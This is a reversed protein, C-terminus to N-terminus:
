HSAPRALFRWARACAGRLLQADRTRVESLQDPRRGRVARQGQALALEADPQIRRIERVAAFGRAMASSRVARVIKFLADLRLLGAYLLVCTLFAAM